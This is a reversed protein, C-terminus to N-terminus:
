SQAPSQLERWHEWQGSSCLGPSSQQMHPTSLQHRMSPPPWPLNSATSGLPLSGPRQRILHAMSSSSSMCLLMQKPGLATHPRMSFAKSASCCSSSSCPKVSSAQLDHCFWTKSESRCVQKCALASYSGCLLEDRVDDDDIRLAIELAYGIVVSATVSMNLTSVRMSAPTRLKTYVLCCSPQISVPAGLCSLVTDWESQGVLGSMDVNM